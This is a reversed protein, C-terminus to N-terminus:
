ILDRLEQTNVKIIDEGLPRLQSTQRSTTPSYKDKNEFWQGDKYAFIPYWLYSYVVYTNGVYEGDTNSAKFPIKAEVLERAESNTTKIRMKSIDKRILKGGTDVSKYNDKFMQYLRFAELGSIALSSNLFNIVKRYDYIPSFGEKKLISIVKRDYRDKVNEIEERLINKVYLKM